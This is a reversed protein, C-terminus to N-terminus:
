PATPLHRAILATLQHIRFPKALGAVFGFSLPDTLVAAEAYGSLALARVTPHIERLIELTEQGGKGGPVTLDLLTLHFPLGAQLAQRYAAIAAESDAVTCVEYGLDNLLDHLLERLSDNDDMVLIRGHQPVIQSSPEAPALDPQDAAPLHLTFVTGMGVQSSVTIAGDHKHMISFSTALGLGSGNPKTTFFPEFLHTLHEPAIGTGTDQIVIRVQRLPAQAGQGRDDNDASLTLTGGGSMAQRANLVLNEIVQGIQIADIDCPWLDSSIRLELRLDSGSLAFRATDTLLKTISQVRRVPQGGKAFTLLQQTLGTARGFSTMASDLASAADESNHANLHRQAMEVLGFASGLLNNFDHAIGGALLGIAEITSEKRLSDELHLRDTIDRFVLIAGRIKGLNDCIPAINGAIRRERGLRTALTTHQDLITTAGQRLAGQAPDTTLIRFDADLLALVTPLAQGTAEALTWGTLLEAAPNMRTILGSLDTAIVADAISRLTIALDEESTRLRAEALARARRNAAEALERRVVPALRILNSKILYDHAGAKMLAVAAEEGISGSVIIFPLDLGLSQLLALAACADFQPLHYDAIVLDWVQRALAARMQAADEVRESDVAYGAKALQRLALAADDPSDEIQLVRLPINM